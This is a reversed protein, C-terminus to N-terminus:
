QSIELAIVPLEFDAAKPVDVEVYAQRRASDSGVEAFISQRGPVLHMTYYGQSDTEARTFSGDRPAGVQALAIGGGTAKDVVRGRVLTTKVLEVTVERTEGVALKAVARAAFTWSGEPPDLTTVQYDGEPLADFSFTGDEGSEGTVQTQIQYLGRLRVAVGSVSIGADRAVIRGTIKGESQMIVSKEDGGAVYIEPIRALGKATFYVVAQYGQPIGGIEFRGRADTKTEYLKAAEPYMRLNLHWPMNELTLTENSARPKGAEPDMINSVSVGAGAVPRGNGDLVTGAVKAQAAIMRIEVTGGPRLFQKDLAGKYVRVEAFGAQLPRRALLLWADWDRRGALEFGFGGGVGTKTFRTADAERPGKSQEAEAMSINYAAVEIGEAAKGNEDLVTGRVTVAATAGTPAQGSAGASSDESRTEAGATPARQRSYISLTNGSLQTLRVVALRNERTLVAVYFPPAPNGGYPWQPFDRISLTGAGSRAILDRLEGDSLRDAAVWDAVELRAVRAGRAAILLNKDQWYCMDGVGKEDIWKTWNPSGPEEASLEKPWLNKAYEGRVWFDYTQNTAVDLICRPKGADSVLLSQRGRFVSNSAFVLCTEYGNAYSEVVEDNFPLEGEFAGGRPKAPDDKWPVRAFLAAYAFTPVASGPEPLEGAGAVSKRFTEFEADTMVLSLPCLPDRLFTELRAIAEARLGGPKMRKIDLVRADEPLRNIFDRMWSRQADRRRADEPTLAPQTLALWLKWQFTKVQDPFEVYSSEMVGTGPGDKAPFYEPVYTDIADLLAKRAAEPMQGTAYRAAFDRVEHQLSDIREATLFSYRGKRLGDAFRAAIEDALPRSQDRAAAQIGGREPAGGSAVATSDTSTVGSPTEASPRAGDPTLTFRPVWVDKEGTVTVKQVVDSKLYAKFTREGTGRARLPTYRGVSVSYEGPALRVRYSGNQDTVAWIAYTNGRRFDVSWDVVGKGTVSDLVRGRVFAGEVVEVHLETTERPKVLVNDVPVAVCDTGLGFVRVSYEGPPVDDLAFQPSGASTQTDATYSPGSVRRIEIRAGALNRMLKPDKTSVSGALRGTAQMTVAARTGDITVLTQKVDLIAYGQSKVELRATYGRPLHTIAFEGTEGTQAVYWDALQPVYSLMCYETCVADMIRPPVGLARYEAEDGVMKQFNALRVEAGAIPKGAEDAVRGSIGGDGKTLRIKVTQKARDPKYRIGFGGGESRVVTRTTVGAKDLVVNEFAIQDQWQVCLVWNAQAAPRPMELMFEGSADATGRVPEAPDEGQSHWKYATVEAGAAPKGDEDTVAGRVALSTAADAAGDGAPYLQVDKFEAWECPRTEFRFEWMEHLATVDFRATTLTINGERHTEADAEHLKGKRDVAVIRRDLGGAMDDQVTVVAKGDAQIPSQFVAGGQGTGSAGGGDGTDGRATWPGQGIGVRVNATQVDNPIDVGFAKIEGVAKGNRQAAWSSAFRGQPVVEWTLGLREGDGRRIKVAFLRAGAGEVGVLRTGPPDCPPEGLATGGPRWWSDRKSPNTSIGLLEVTVGDALTRAFSGRESAGERKTAALMADADARAAQAAMEVADAPPDVSNNGSGRPEARVWCHVSGSTKDGYKSQIDGWFLAVAKGPDLQAAEVGPRSVFVTDVDVPVFFRPGKLLVEGAKKVDEPRSKICDFALVLEKLRVANDVKLTLPGPAYDGNLVGGGSNTVRGDKVVYFGVVLRVPEKGSVRWARAAETVNRTECFLSIANEDAAEEVRAMPVFGLFMAAAAAVAAAVKRRRTKWIPRALHELRQRLRSQSEFLGLLGLGVNSRIALIRRGEELLTERYESTKEGLVRAVTADCCLERLARARRGALWVFPHFWFAVHLLTQLANAALDWRKVHALEHLLMHELEKESAERASREPLLIVPRLVGFVAASPSKDTVVARPPRRLGLRKACQRAMAELPEGTQRAAGEAAMRGLGRMKAILWTLISIVGAAWLLMALTKFSPRPMEPTVLPAPSPAMPAPEVRGPVAQPTAPASSTPAVAAPAVAAPAPKATIREATAQATRTFFPAVVSTPLAFDPPLLLKVFVLAWLAYRVQPWGRKRLPVDALWVLAGLVATQVSIAAAWAWWAAAVNNLADVM